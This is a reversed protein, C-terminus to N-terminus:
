STHTASVFPVCDFSTPKAKKFYSAVTCAREYPGPPCRYPAMPVSMVFTGGDPMAELQKRLVGTQDPGAKWAHKIIQQAEANYGQVNDFLLEIGGALVLRDYGFTKGGATKVTRGATDIGTVTDQVWNNVVKKVHDYGFTIDEMNNIDIIIRIRENVKVLHYIPGQREIIIQGLEDDENLDKHNKMNSHLVYLLLM